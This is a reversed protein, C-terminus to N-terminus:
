VVESYIQFSFTAFKEDFWKALQESNKCAMVLDREELLELNDCWDGMHSKVKAIVGAETRSTYLMDFGERNPAEVANHVQAIYVRM